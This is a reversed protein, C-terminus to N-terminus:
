GKRYEELKHEMRVLRQELTDGAMLIGALIAFVAVLAASGVVFELHWEAPVLPGVYYYAAALAAGSLATWITCAATMM